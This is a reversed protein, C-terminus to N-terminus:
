FVSTLFHNSVGHTFRNRTGGPFYPLYLTVLIQALIYTFLPFDIFHLHESLFNRMTM